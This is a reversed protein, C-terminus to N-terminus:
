HRYIIAAITTTSKRHRRCGRRWRDNTSRRRRLALAMSTFRRQSLNLIRTYETGSPEPWGALRQMAAVTRKASRQQPRPLVDHRLVRGDWCAFREGPGHRPRCCHVTPTPPASSRRSAPPMTMRAKNRHGLRMGANPGDTGRIVGTVYPYVGSYYRSDVNARVKVPGKKLLERLLQSGRPTISFCVLPTSGKTFSWGNDGFSNVWGREDALDRNETNESILGL